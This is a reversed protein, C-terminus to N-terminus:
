PKPIITLYNSAAWGTRTQDNVAALNYWTYGDVERPGDIVLYAETDFGLFLQDSNLGPKSRIRLGQGQTGSIQVYAGPGIEGPAVTPTPTPAYPDYTATAAPPPTASPAPLVTVVALLGSLDPAPPATWEIWLFTLILLIVAVGLASALVRPTFLRDFEFRM